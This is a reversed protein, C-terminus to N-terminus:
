VISFEVGMTAATNILDERGDQVPYLPLVSLLAGPRRRVRIARSTRLFILSTRPWTRSCVPCRPITLRRTEKKKINPIKDELTFTEVGAYVCRM